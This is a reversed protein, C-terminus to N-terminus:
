IMFDEPKVFKFGTINHNEIENKMTESVVILPSKINDLIFIHTDSSIKEEDIVLNDITHIGGFGEDNDNYFSFSLISNDYDTCDYKNILNCIYYGLLPKKNVYDFDIPYFEAHNNYKELLFEKFKKSVILIPSNHVKAVLRDRIVGIESFILDTKTQYHSSAKEVVSTGSIFLNIAIEGDKDFLVGEVYADFRPKEREEIPIVYYM